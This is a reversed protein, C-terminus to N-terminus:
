MERPLPQSGGRRPVSIGPARAIGGSRSRLSDFAYVALASWILGFGVARHLELTEGFIWLGCMLQLSPAIYQLLGMTSYPILRAGYAFLFLPVATIVGCGALLADITVPSHGMAGTGHAERWLLYGLALPLLLFTEVALGPLAEVAIVKRVFGYLGFSVAVTLSIWPPTGAFVSLYVVAAAAIAVALWQGRSLRESLVAIGLVVNFLPNIFYGLSAELVHGNAVAFVYVLWNVTILSASLGLRLLLPPNFIVRRVSELQKTALMWLFIFACSWVVRHAIVEVTGVDHLPRLYLPFLGWIVYAALAATLGPRSLGPQDPRDMVAPSVAARTTM